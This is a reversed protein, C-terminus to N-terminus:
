MNPQVMIFSVFSVVDFIISCKVDFNGRDCATLLVVLIFIMVDDDILLNVNFFLRTALLIVIGLVDLANDNTLCNVTVFLRIVLKVAIGFGVDIFQLYRM